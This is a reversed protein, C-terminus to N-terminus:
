PTSLTKAQRLIGRRTASKPPNAPEGAAASLLWDWEAYIFAHGMDPLERLHANPLHRALERAGEIPNIQDCIGHFIEIPIDFRSWDLELDRSMMQTEEVMGDMGHAVREALMQRSRKRIEPDLLISREHECTAKSAAKDAYSDTNQLISRILFPVVRRHIGPWHRGIIWTLQYFYDLQRWHSAIFNPFCGSAIVLRDIRGSLEHAVCLAPVTGYSYALISFRDIRLLQCLQAIDDGYDVINANTKHTSGFTGPRCPIILKAGLRNLLPEYREPFSLIDLAGGSMADFHIIPYGSTEGIAFYELTRSDALYVRKRASPKPRMEPALGLRTTPALLVTKLLETQGSVQFHACIDKFYTRATEYSVSIHDAAQRLNAFQLFASLLKQRSNPLAEIGPLSNVIDKIDQKYSVKLWGVRSPLGIQRVQTPDFLLSVGKIPPHADNIKPTSRVGSRLSQSIPLRSEATQDAVAGGNLELPFGNQDFAEFELALGNLISSSLENREQLTTMKESIQIARILHGLVFDAHVDEGQKTNTGNELQEFLVAILEPWLSNDLATGYILDVLEQARVSKEQDLRPLPTM